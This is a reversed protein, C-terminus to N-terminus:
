TYITFPSVSDGINFQDLHLNSVNISQCFTTLVVDWGDLEKFM